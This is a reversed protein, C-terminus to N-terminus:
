VLIFRTKIFISAKKIKGGDFSIFLFHLPPKVGYCQLTLGKPNKAFFDEKKAESCLTNKKWFVKCQVRNRRTSQM